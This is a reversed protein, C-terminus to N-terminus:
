ISLKYNYKKDNILDFYKIENNLGYRIQTVSTTRVKNKIINKPNLHFSLIEKSNSKKDLEKKFFNSTNIIEEKSYITNSMWLYNEYIQECILASGDWTYKFLENKLKDFLILIYPNFLNTKRELDSIAFSNSIIDKLLIGRSIKDSSEIGMNNLISAIYRKSTGIWSGKGKPDEPYVIKESNYLFESPPLSHVRNEPIDRNSTLIFNENDLFATVKCM